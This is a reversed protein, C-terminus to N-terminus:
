RKEQEDKTESSELIQGSKHYYSITGETFM